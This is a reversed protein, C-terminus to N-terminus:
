GTPPPPAPNDDDDLCPSEAAAPQPAGPPAPPPTFAAPSAAHPPPPPWGPAAPAGPRGLPPAYPVGPLPPTDSPGSREAQEPQESRPEEPSSLADNDGRPNPGTGNAPAAEAVPPPPESPQEPNREPVATTHQQTLFSRVVQLATQQLGELQYAEVHGNGLVQTVVDIQSRLYERQDQRLNEMVLLSDEPHQALHAAWGAAGGKALQREYFRIKEAEIQQLEVQQRGALVAQQHQWELQRMALAQQREGYAMARQVQFEDLQQNRQHQAADVAMGQQAERVAEATVHGIAQLRRQYTINEDDRRIRVDCQVRLGASSGLPESADLSKLLAREAQASDDIAFQRTVPRAQMQLESLLLAPVDRHGSAVFQAPDTVQWTLEIGAGFEFADNDSPFRLQSRVPHVGVDVEYVATYRKGAFNPRQPPLFTEYGNKHTVCVHANDMRIPVKRGLTEFRSLQRVMLVPDRVETHRDAAQQWEPPEQFNLM